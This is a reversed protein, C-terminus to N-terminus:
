RATATNAAGIAACAEPSGESIAGDGKGTPFDDDIGDGFEDSAICACLLFAAISPGARL